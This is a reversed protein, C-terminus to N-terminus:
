DMRFFLTNDDAELPVIAHYLLIHRADIKRDMHYHGFYWRVWDLIKHFDLDGHTDGTVYLM